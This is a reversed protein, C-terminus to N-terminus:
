PSNSSMPTDAHTSPADSQAYLSPTSHESTASHGRKSYFRGPCGVTLGSCLCSTYRQSGGDDTLVHYHMLPIGVNLGVHHVLKCM